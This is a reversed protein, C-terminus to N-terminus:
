SGITIWALAMRMAAPKAALRARLRRAGPPARAALPSPM